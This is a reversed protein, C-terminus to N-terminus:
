ISSETDEHFGAFGAIDNKDLRHSGMAWGTFLRKDSIGEALLTAHHLRTDRSINKYLREVKSKPGEIYQIFVGKHYVLYGTIRNIRNLAQSQKQISRIENDDVSADSRGAYVLFYVDDDGAGLSTVNQSLLELLETEPVPRSFLYGQGSQVGLSFVENLQDENEIGEAVLRIGLSKAMRSIAAVIAQMEKSKDVEMVFMRDIKLTDVNLRVLQALSSYGTGFDDVAVKMGTRCLEDLTKVHGSVDSMLSTETIELMLRTPDAGTTELTKNFTRILHEDAFQRASLNM